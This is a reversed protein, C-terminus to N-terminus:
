KAVKDSTVNVLHQVKAIMGRVSPTDLLDRVRHMKGLGLGILTALQSGDRRSPSGIQKVTLKTGTAAKKATKAAPKAAPKKANKTM